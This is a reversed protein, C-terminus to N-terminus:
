AYFREVINKFLVGREEFNKFQDFSSCAPSLLVTSGEKACQISMQVADKFQEIIIIDIEKSLSNRISKAAKGYAIITKINNKFQLIKSFDKEKPIGGMILIINNNISKIAMIASDINTSKSDNIFDIGDHNLFHEFRHPLGKFNKIQNFINKESIGVKKAITAAAIFNSINHMGRIKCHEIDLSYNSNKSKIENNDLYFDGHGKKLSFAFHKNDKDLFRERIQSDDFNYICFKSNDFIKSKTNLYHEVSDYRDMHDASINLIASIEKKLNESHELQFSSLELVCYDFRNEEYLSNEFVVKSFPIGINGSKLINLESSLIDFILSVTTTKGNTGTVCINDVKSFFSAFDIESIVPIKNEYIKNLIDIKNPVGPSKIIIDCDLIKESHKGIEVEVNLKKLDNIYSQNTNLNMDTIFVNFDLNRALKASWYGSKGLGIIGINKGQFNM